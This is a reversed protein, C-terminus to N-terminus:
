NRCENSVEELAGQVTTAGLNSAPTFAVNSATQATYTSSVDIELWQSGTSLLLDPPALAVTPAPATGTGLESVVFYYNSNAEASAPLAETSLGLAM